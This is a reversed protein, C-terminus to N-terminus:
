IEGVFPTLYLCSSSGAVEVLEQLLWKVEQLQEASDRGEAEVEWLSMSGTM